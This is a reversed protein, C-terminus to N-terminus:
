LINWISQNEINKKINKSRTDDASRHCVLWSKVYVEPKWLHLPPGNIKIFMLESIHEVTLRTRLDNCIINLLSFGRKCEVTSCPFTQVCNHIELILTKPSKDEELFERFGHVANDKNLFFRDCMRKVQDEDYRVGVSQPWTTKDLICIDQLISNDIYNKDLLRSNLNVCISTIFQDSNISIIKSYSTLKVNKFLMNSLDKKFEEMHDGNKYKFSEIIRISRKIKLDANILTIDKSQLALSLTSLEYLVDCM